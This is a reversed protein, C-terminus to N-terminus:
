VPHNPLSLLAYGLATSGPFLKIPRSEDSAPAAAAAAASVALAAAGSAQMSDGFSAKRDAADLGVVSGEGGAACGGASSSSSKADGIADSKDDDDDGGGSGAATADSKADSAGSESSAVAAAAAGKRKTRARIGVTWASKRLSQQQRIRDRLLQTLPSSG